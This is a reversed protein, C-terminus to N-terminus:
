KVFFKFIVACVAFLIPQHLLYIWLSHRGMWEFPRIRFSYFFAPFRHDRVAPGLFAGSLFLLFYPLLPYYDASYFGKRPLGIVALMLDSFAGGAYRIMLLYLVFLLLATFFPIWREKRSFLAYLLMSFGIMHLIGFRIELGSISLAPLIVSTVLTIIGAAGCIILARRLVNRSFATCIGSVTLFLGVFIVQLIWFAATNLFPFDIQRGFFAGVEAITFLTHHALMGALAAGRIWDLAFVREKSM